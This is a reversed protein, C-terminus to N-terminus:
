GDAPELRDVLLDIEGHSEFGLRALVPASM